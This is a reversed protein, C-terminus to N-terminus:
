QQPVVRVMEGVVPRRTSPAAASAPSTRIESGQDSEYPPPADTEKQVPKGVTAAAEGTVVWEEPWGQPRLTLIGHEQSPRGLQWGRLASPYLIHGFGSWPGSDKSFAIGGGDILAEDGGQALSSESGLQAATQTKGAGRGPYTSVVSCLVSIAVDEMKAPVSGHGDLGPQARTALQQLDLFAYNGAHLELTVGPPLEQRLRQLTLSSRAQSAAHATPTSGVSLVWRPFTPDKSKKSSAFNGRVLVERGMHAAQVVAKVEDALFLCADNANRSSYSHGAHAYFGYIETSESRLLCDILSALAESGAPLGARSANCSNFCLDMTTLTTILRMEVLLASVVRWERSQGHREM